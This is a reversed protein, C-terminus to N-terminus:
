GLLKRAKRFVDFFMQETLKGTNTNQMSPHYSCLLIRGNPLDYHV